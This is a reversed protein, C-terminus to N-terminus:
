SFRSSNAGSQIKSVGKDREIVSYGCSRRRTTDILERVSESDITLETGCRLNHLYARLPQRERRFPSPLTLTSQPFAGAPNSGRVKIRKGQELASAILGSIAYLACFRGLFQCDVFVEAGYLRLFPLERANSSPPKLSKIRGRGRLPTSHGRWAASETAGGPVSPISSALGGPKPGASIDPAGEPANLPLHDEQVTFAFLFARRVSM